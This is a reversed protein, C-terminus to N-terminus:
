RACSKDDNTSLRAVEQVRGRCWRPQSHGAPVSVEHATTCEGMALGGRKGYVPPTGDPVEEMPPVQLLVRV